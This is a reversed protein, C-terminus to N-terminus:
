NNSIQQIFRVQHIVYLQGFNCPPHHYKSHHQCDDIHYDPLVDCAVFVAWLVSEGSALTVIDYGRKVQMPTPVLPPVPPMHGGMNYLNSVVRHTTESQAGWILFDKRRRQFFLLWSHMAAIEGKVWPFWTILYKLLSHDLVNKVLWFVQDRDWDSRCAVHLHSDRTNSSILTQLSVYSNNWCM